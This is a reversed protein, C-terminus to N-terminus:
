FLFERDPDAKVFVFDFEHTVVLLFRFGHVPPSAIKAHLLRVYCTFARGEFVAICSGLM